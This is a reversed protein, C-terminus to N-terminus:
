ARWLTAARLMADRATRSLTSVTGSMQQIGADLAKYERRNLQRERLEYMFLHGAHYTGAWIPDAWVTGLRIGICCWGDAALVPRRPVPAAKSLAADMESVLRELFFTQVADDVGSLAPAHMLRAFIAARVRGDVLARPVLVLRGLAIQMRPLADAYCADAMAQTFRQSEAAVMPVFGESRSAADLARWLRRRAARTRGFVSFRVAKAARAIADTGDKTGCWETFPQKTIRGRYELRGRKVIFWGM